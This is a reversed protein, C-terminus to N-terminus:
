MQDGVLERRGKHKELFMLAASPSLMDLVGFRFPNYWSEGNPLREDPDETTPYCKTMGAVEPTLGVREVLTRAIQACWSAVRDNFYYGMEFGPKRRKAGPVPLADAFTLAIVTHEWRVGIKNYEQFTRILSNRMRTDSMKLCYIVLHIAGSKSIGGIERLNQDDRDCSSNNLGYTDYLAVPVGEISCRDIKIIEPRVVFSSGVALFDIGLLNNILTSRGTGTEGVVLIGFDSHQSQVGAYFVYLMVYEISLIM